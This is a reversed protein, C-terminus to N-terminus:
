IHRIHPVNEWSLGKTIHRVKCVRHRFTDVIHNFDDDFFIAWRSPVNNKIKIKHILLAKRIDPAGHFAEFFNAIGLRQCIEKASPNLSVVFMKVGVQKMYFLIEFVDPYLKTGDWLTKDLDFIALKFDFGILPM